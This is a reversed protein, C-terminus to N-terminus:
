INNFTFNDSREQQHKLEQQRYQKDKGERVLWMM